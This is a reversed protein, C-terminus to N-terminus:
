GAVKVMPRVATFGGDLAIIQGNIWDGGPGLLFAALAAADEAEGHRGLPYQASIAKKSAENAVLKATLPTAMLGPAIANVRLGMASHDAALSRVLAEIAGKAMAIAAHNGVGIGAAVSSFMLLRGAGSGGEKQAQQLAAVYAKATFFATDLNAALCDRYQAESTRTIGALLIAGAANVVADPVAGFAATAENVAKIAGAETAVDAEILVDDDAPDLRDLSRGARAVRWGQTRLTAALARAIGGSGGTILCTSTM